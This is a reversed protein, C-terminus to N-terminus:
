IVASIVDRNLKSNTISTILTPALTQIANRDEELELNPM